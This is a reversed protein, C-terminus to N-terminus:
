STRTGSIHDSEFHCNFTAIDNKLLRFMELSNTAASCKVVTHYRGGIPYHEGGSPAKTNNYLNSM